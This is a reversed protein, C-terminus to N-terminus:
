APIKALGADLDAQPAPVFKQDNALATANELFYRVFGKVEPKDLSAKKAYIFLPRALPYSEDTITEASPVVCGDGGDVGLATLSDQNEEFYSFGFYGLGAKAAKVVNVTVNDDESASYDQRSPLPKGDAGKGLIEENFFDYTGSQSGAGALSLPLDNFGAGIAKWNKVASGPKWITKLDGLTLCSKGLDVGSKTVLTIGDSAVRLEEYTVGADACAKAEEDKIKRSANSIDTEGKCFVEFGGGTGSARVDVNVDANVGNFAEAAASALPEVTSSGDIIIDGALGAGGSAPTDSGGGCGAAVLAGASLAAVAITRVNLRARTM